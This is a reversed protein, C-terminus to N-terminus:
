AAAGTTDDHTLRTFADELSPASVELDHASPVGDLLARLCADSDTTSLQIRHGTVEAATVGPLAEWGSRDLQDTSFSVKRGGVSAKIQSGTGDAVVRGRALLVVRDAMEDAEELYHTAFLVTRGSAAVERMSEWFRRRADVDMAVTPEDLILLEPDPLLALAFRLRQAQGGSLKDTRTRLFSGCDSREIVEALPLPHRHLGYMLKLMDQATAEALLAGGQLMAGVCGSRLAALPDDGFVEVRGRDASALGLILENVTSKGAGNPGLLAVIQGVPVDLTVGDVATVPGYRRHVDVLSVAPVAASAAISRPRAALGANPGTPPLMTSSM